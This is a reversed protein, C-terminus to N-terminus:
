NESILHARCGELNNARLRYRWLFFLSALLSNAALLLWGWYAGYIHNEVMWALPAVVGGWYSLINVWMIIQTDGKATLVGQMVWSIGDFLFYFSFALLTWYASTYLLTSSFREFGESGMLTLLLWKASFTATLIVPAAFSLVLIICNLIARPIIQPSKAGLANSSIAAATKNISAGVFILLLYFSQALAVLTLQEEGMKAALLFFYYHGLTEIWQGIGLPLGLSAFQACTSSLLAWKPRIRTHFVKHCSEGFVAQVMIAAQLLQAIGTGLAAGIVGLAPVGLGGFILWKDLFINVIAGLLTSITIVRVRGIGIFFGTLGNILVQFPMFLILPKFYDAELCTESGFLRCPMLWAVVFTFPILAVTLLLAAWAIPGIKSSEGAGFNRGVIVESVGAVSVPIVAILWYSTGGLASANLAACDFKALYWRDTFLMIGLSLYALMLPWTLAWVERMSGPKHRTLTTEM